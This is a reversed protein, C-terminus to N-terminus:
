RRIRVEALIEAENGIYGDTMFCVIRLRNDSIRITSRRRIGEIMM